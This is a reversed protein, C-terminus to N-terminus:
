CRSRERSSEAQRGLTSCRAAVDASRVRDRCTSGIPCAQGSQQGTAGDKARPSQDLRMLDGSPCSTRHEHKCRIPPGGLDSLRRLLEWRAPGDMRRIADGEDFELETTVRVWCSLREIPGEIPSPAKWCHIPSKSGGAALRRGDPSFALARITGEKALPPGIPLGTEACWLRVTGDVGATALLTGDPRFALRDVRGQHGLPEGIPRGTAADWLRATGDDCATAFAGGDPRFGVGHISGQHLITV